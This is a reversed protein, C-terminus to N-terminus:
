PAGPCSSSKLPEILDIKIEWSIGSSERTSDVSVGTSLFIPPIERSVLFISSLSYKTAGIHYNPTIHRTGPSEPFFLM